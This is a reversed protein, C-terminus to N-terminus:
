VKNPGVFTLAASFGFRNQNFGAPPNKSGYVFGEHLLMTWLVFDAPYKCSFFESARGGCFYWFYNAMLTNPTFFIIFHKSTQRCMSTCREMHTNTHINASTANLTVHVTMVVCCTVSLANPEGAPPPRAFNHENYRRLESGPRIQEGKCPEQDIMPHPLRLSLLVFRMLPFSVSVIAASILSYSTFISRPRLWCHQQYMLKHGATQRQERVNLNSKSCWHQVSCLLAM